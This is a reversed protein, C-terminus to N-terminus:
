RSNFPKLALRVFPPQSLWTAFLSDRSRRTKQRVDQATPADFPNSTAEAKRTAGAKVFDAIIVSSPYRPYYQSPRASRSWTQPAPSVFLGRFVNLLGNARCQTLHNFRLRPILSARGFNCLTRCPALRTGLNSIGDGIGLGNNQDEPARQPYCRFASKSHEQMSNNTISSCSRVM